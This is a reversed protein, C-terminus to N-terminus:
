SFARSRGTRRRDTVFKPTHCAACGAAYFVESARCCRRIAWTAGRRCRWTAPQLLDRSGAGHDDAEPAGGDPAARCQPRRRAHLRWGDPHLPTSIGIDGAFAAAAQERITPQGAKWGFRGLMPRAPRKRGSWTRGGASATAMARRRSGGAGPHGGGAGGGAAGARDDAAGGAAVADTRAGIPGYALDMVAYSPAAADGGRRRGADGARRRLEIAMRGEAPKGPVGFTQLQGGYTPSPCRPPYDQDGRDDPRM